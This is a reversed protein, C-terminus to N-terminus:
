LHNKSRRGQDHWGGCRCKWNSGSCKLVLMESDRFALSVEHIGKGGFRVGGGRLGIKPYLIEIREPMQGLFRLALKLGVETNQFMEDSTLDQPHHPRPYLKEGKRM